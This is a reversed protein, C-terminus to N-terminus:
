EQDTSEGIKGIEQDGYQEKQTKQSPQGDEEQGENPTITPFNM